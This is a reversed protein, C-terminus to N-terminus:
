ELIVKVTLKSGESDELITDTGIMSSPWHSNSSFKKAVSERGLPESPTTSPIILALIVM